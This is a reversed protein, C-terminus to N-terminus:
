HPAQEPRVANLEFVPVEGNALHQGFDNSLSTFPHSGPVVDFSICSLVGSPLGSGHFPAPYLHLDRQNQRQGIRPNEVTM